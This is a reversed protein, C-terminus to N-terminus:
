NDDDAHSMLRIKNVAPIYERPENNKNSKLAIELKRELKIRENYSYCLSM